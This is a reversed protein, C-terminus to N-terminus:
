PSGEDKWVSGLYRGRQDFGKDIAARLPAGIPPRLDILELDTTPLFAAGTVREDQSPAIEGGTVECRFCINVVHRAGDPAITDNLLIPDGVAIDLGTEERVERQLAESLSEGWDVGGGPLLWYKRGDKEHGVLLVNEDETIVAAVRIRPTTPANDVAMM